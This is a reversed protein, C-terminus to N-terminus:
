ATMSSIRCEKCDKIKGFYTERYKHITKFPVGLIAKKIYTVKTVLVGMKPHYRTELKRKRKVSLVKLLLVNSKTLFITAM